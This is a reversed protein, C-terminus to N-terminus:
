TILGLIYAEFLWDLPTWIELTHSTWDDVMALVGIVAAAFAVRTAYQRFRLLGATTIVIGLLSGISGAVSYFRWISVFSFLGVALGLTVVVPERDTMADWAYTAAWFALLAGWTYHHPALTHGDPVTELM